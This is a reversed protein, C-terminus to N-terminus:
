SGFLAADMEVVMTCPRDRFWGGIANAAPYNAPSLVLPLKEVATFISSGVAMGLSMRLSGWGLRVHQNWVQISGKWTREAVVRDRLEYLVQRMSPVLEKVGETEPGIGAAAHFQVTRTYNLPGAPVTAVFAAFFDIAFKQLCTVSGREDCYWARLPHRLGTFIGGFACDRAVTPAVGVLLMRAGGRAILGRIAQPLSIVKSQEQPSMRWTYYVALSFVNTMLGTCAGTLQGAVFPALWDSSIQARLKESFSRELPFYVAGSVTRQLLAARLGALPPWPWNRADLLPRRSMTAKYLARDLPNFLVTQTMGTFIGAFM